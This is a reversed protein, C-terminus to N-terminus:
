ISNRRKKSTTKLKVLESDNRSRKKTPRPTNLLTPENLQNERDIDSSYGDLQQKLEPNRDYCLSCDGCTCINIQEQQKQEEKEKEVLDPRYDRIKIKTYLNKELGKPEEWLKQSGTNIFTCNINLYSIDEKTFKDKVSERENSEFLDYNNLWICPHGWNIKRRKGFKPNVTFKTQCGLWCKWSPLFKKIEPHFDDLIVCPANEDFDVMGDILTHYYNCLFLSKCVTSKATQSDGIWVLSGPRDM